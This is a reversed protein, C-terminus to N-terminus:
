IEKGKFAGAHDGAWEIFRRPPRGMLEAFGCSVFAPLGVAAGWAEMLFRVVVPSGFRAPLERWADEATMEEARLPHGIAEGIAAIQERHTLPEPGTLCYEAGEHGDECLARVAVAAIDQEHIPVTPVDLYPWRVVDGARIQAGWWGLTNIAFMGPRLFTWGMGSNEITRELHEARTRGPNPQQFFPHATKLPASLLVIRRAKRAFREIAADIAAEPATWVLWVTDIGELAPDLTELATLDGCVVEAAPGLNAKEPHRVLARFREGRATLQSAVERGINGTGGVVLIM